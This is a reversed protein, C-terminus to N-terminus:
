KNLSKIMPIIKKTLDDNMIPGIHRYRIYGNKDIIFTEPYGYVGWDITVRGTLDAGISKYPNGLKTLFISAAQPTDKYNIGYIWVGQQALKMLYKHELHCPQCWSAWVNVLTTKAKLVKSSFGDGIGEIGPLEFSPVPKGIMASPVDRISQGSKIKELYVWFILALTLLLIAPLFYSLRLNFKM